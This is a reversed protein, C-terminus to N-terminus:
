GYLRGRHGQCEVDRRGSVGGSLDVNSKGAGGFGATGLRNVAGLTLGVAHSKRGGEFRTPKQREYRWDLTAFAATRETEFLAVETGSSDARDEDRNRERREDVASDPALAGRSAAAGAGSGPASFTPIPAGPANSDAVLPAGNCVAFLNPGTQGPLLTADVDREFGLQSCRHSLYRRYEEDLTQANAAHVALAASSVLVAIPFSSIRLV